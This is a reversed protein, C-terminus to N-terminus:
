RRTRLHQTVQERADAPLTQMWQAVAKPDYQQWNAAMNKRAWLKAEGEPLTNIWSTAAAPDSMSLTVAYTSSAMVPDKNETSNNGAAVAPTHAVLFRLADGAFGPDISAYTGGAAVVKAINLKQDASLGNFQSRLETIQAKDWTRLQYLVEDSRLTEGGIGGVKELWEAPKPVKNGSAALEVLKLQDRAIQKDEDSGLLNILRDMAASDGQASRLALSILDAKMNPNAAAEALHKLAFEPDSSALRTLARERIDKAQAASFGAGELDAAFWERGNTESILSYSEQAMGSKWSEPLSALDAILHTALGRDSSLNSAFIRWGDPREWLARVETSFSAALRQGSLAIEAQKQLDPALTGLAAELAAPSKKALEVLLSRGARMTESSLGGASLEQLRQLALEPNNKAVEKLIGLETPNDPTRRYHDILFRPDNNALSILARGGQGYNNKGAWPILSEPDEKIWREFLIMRFVSLEPGKRFSFRDGEVWAAFESPPLSNALGVAARMRESPSGADRIARMQEAVIEENGPPKTPRRHDRAAGETSNEGAKERALPPSALYWGLVATGLFGLFGPVLASISKM